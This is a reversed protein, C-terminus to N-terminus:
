VFPYMIKKLMFFRNQAPTRYQCDIMRNSLLTCYQWEHEIYRAALRILRRSSRIASEGRGSSDDTM